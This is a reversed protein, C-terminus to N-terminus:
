WGGVRIQVQGKSTTLGERKLYGENLTRRSRNNNAEEM